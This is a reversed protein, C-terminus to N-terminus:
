RCAVVKNDAIMFIRDTPAYPYVTGSAFSSFAPLVGVSDSFWFCPFKQFFRRGEKLLFQPHLHGCLNYYSNEQQEVPQHSFLFPPLLLSEEHVILKEKFFRVSCVDHNGLVVEWSINEFQEILSFILAFEENIYSHFLDGLFIVKQPNYFCCVQRLLEIDHIHVSKPIAIGAKRFHAAKGIHLDAVLLTATQQWYIVKAPHLCLTQHLLTFIQINTHNDTM